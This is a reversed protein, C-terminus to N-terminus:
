HGTPKCLDALELNRRCCDRCLFWTNGSRAHRMFFEPQEPQRLLHGCINDAWDTETARHQEVRAEFAAGGPTLTAASM